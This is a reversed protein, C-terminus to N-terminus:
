VNPRVKYKLTKGNLFPTLVRQPTIDFHHIPEVTHEESKVTVKSNTQPVQYFDCGRKSTFEVLQDFRDPGFLEILYPLATPASFVGAAGSEHKNLHSHPASDSGFFFAPHFFAAERLADRDDATKCVPKCFAHPNLTGGVIDDLTYEMHHATITAAITHYKSCQKVFNVGYKTSVHEIVVRLKPLTDIIQYVVNKLFHEEREFTTIGPSEAHICLVMNLIEMQTFVPKLADLDTVGDSSNTTVGEPYLKGAIAGIRHLECVQAPTTKDTIKFTMLPTFEREGVANMIEERYTLTDNADLIPPLTNPMVIAYQCLDATYPVVTKLMHGQRLHVHFDSPRPMEFISPFENM